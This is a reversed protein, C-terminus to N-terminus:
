TGDYSYVCPSPQAPPPPPSTSDSSAPPQAFLLQSLASLASPILHAPNPQAPRPSFPRAYRRVRCEEVPQFLSSSTTIHPQLVPHTCHSVTCGTNRAHLTCVAAFPPPPFCRCLRYHRQTCAHMRPRTSYTSIYFCFRSSGNNGGDLM